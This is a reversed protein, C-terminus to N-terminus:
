QKQLNQITYNLQTHTKAVDPRRHYTHTALIRNGHGTAPKKKFLQAMKRATQSHRNFTISTTLM